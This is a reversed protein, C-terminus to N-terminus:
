FRQPPQLAYGCDINQASIHFIDFHKTQFYETKLLHFKRYIEITMNEYHIPFTLMYIIWPFWLSVAM